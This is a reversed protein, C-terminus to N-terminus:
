QLSIEMVHFRYNPRRGFAVYGRAEYGLKSYLNVAATNEEATDLCISTHGQQLCMRHIYEMLAYAVGKRQFKPNVSLRHICIESNYQLDVSDYEAPIDNNVTVYGAIEGRILAILMEGRDIDEFLIEDSPYEDDWQRLGSVIMNKYVLPRIASIQQKDEKLAKRIEVDVVQKNQMM